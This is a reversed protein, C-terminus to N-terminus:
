NNKMTIEKKRGVNQNIKNGLELKGIEYDPM